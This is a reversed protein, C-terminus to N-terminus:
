SYFVRRFPGLNLFVTQGVSDDLGDNDTVIYVDGRGGVALGELKDPTYVSNARLEDLVDTLLTKTVVPLATGVVFPQFNASKLDVGYVRKISAEAGLQNDREIVAFKGNPLLTLESLGVWPAIGAPVPDLPYSVFTWQGTAVEYRGIKM